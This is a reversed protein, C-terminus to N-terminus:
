QKDFFLKTTVLDGGIAAAASTYADGNLTHESVPYIMRLPIASKATAPAVFKPFDLRVWEQWGEWGRNYLAIWAQTGIREKWTGSAKTYAVKPNALYADVDAQSGGWYLISAQVGKNYHSEATGGVNFGREAAEALLFEMETADFLLAEFTPDQIADAVHSYSSFANSVGYKGGVYAGKYQTFYFPRRPDALVNMADVLTNAPLFDSRGSAVLDVFIPNTNPQDPLYGMAANDANSTIVGSTFASEVMTKATAADVDAMVLGM